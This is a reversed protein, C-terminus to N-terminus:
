RRDAEWCDPCIDRGDRTRRWGGRRLLARATTATRPAGFGSDESMCRGLGPVAADCAIVVYASM